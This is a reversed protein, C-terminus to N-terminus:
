VDCKPDKVINFVEDCFVKDPFTRTNSDKFERYNMDHQFSAKDLENQYICRSDGAEKM